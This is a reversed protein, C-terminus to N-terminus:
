NDNLVYLWGQPHSKIHFFVPKFWDKILKILEIKGKNGDLKRANYSLAGILIDTIQMIQVEHSRIPQMNNILINHSLDYSDDDLYKHLIEIKRYSNTDKIDLYVNYKNSPDLIFAITCFYMKYYWDDHTEVFEEFSMSIPEDSVIKWNGDVNVFTLKAFFNDDEPGEEGNDYYLYLENNCSISGIDLDEIGRSNLTANMYAGDTIPGNAYFDDDSIYGMIIEHYHPLIQNLDNGFNTTKKCIIQKIRRSFCRCRNWSSPM